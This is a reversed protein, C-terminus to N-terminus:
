QRQFVGLVARVGSNELAKGVLQALEQAMEEQHVQERAIRLVLQPEKGGTRISMRAGFIRDAFGLHPSCKFEMWCPLPDSSNASVSEFTTSEQSLQQVASEAKRAQDISIKRVAAIAKPTTIPTQKDASTYCALHPAWDEMWEALARQEQASATILKLAAYAATVPPSLKCTHMAHGPAEREGLDLVATATMEQPSVFVLAGPKAQSVVYTAFGDLSPTKVAACQRRRFPLYAEIDRM